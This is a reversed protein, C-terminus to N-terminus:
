ASKVRREEERLHREEQRRECAHWRLRKTPIYDVGECGRVMLGLGALVKAVFSPINSDEELEGVAADLIMDFIEDDEVSAGPKRSKSRKHPKAILSILDHSPKWGLPSEKDRTALGLWQLVQGMVRIQKEFRKVYTAASKDMGEFPEYAEYHISFLLYTDTDFKLDNPVRM